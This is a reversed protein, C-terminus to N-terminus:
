RAAPASPASAHQGISCRAETRCGAQQCTSATVHTAWMWVWRCPTPPPDPNMVFFAPVHVHVSVSVSVSLWRLMEAAAGAARGSEKGAVNLSDTLGSAKTHLGRMLLVQWHAWKGQHAAGEHAAGALSGVQM